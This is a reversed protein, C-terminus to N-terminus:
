ISRLDKYVKSQKNLSVDLKLSRGDRRGQEGARMQSHQILSSDYSLDIGQTMAILAARYQKQAAGM